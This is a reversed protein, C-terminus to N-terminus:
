ANALTLATGSSSVSFCLRGEREEDIRAAAHVDALDVDDAVRLGAVFHDPALDALELAGPVVARPDLAGLHPDLPKAVELVDVDLRRRNGARWSWTSMSIVTVSFDM